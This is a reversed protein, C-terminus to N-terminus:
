GVKSLEVELPITECDEWWLNPLEVEEAGPGDELQVVIGPYGQNLVLQDQTDAMHDFEDPLFLVLVQVVSMHLGVDRWRRPRFLRPLLKGPFVGLRGEIAVLTM